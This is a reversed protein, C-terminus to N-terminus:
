NAKLLQLEKKLRDVEREARIARQEAADARKRERQTKRRQQQKGIQIGKQIGQEEVLDSLNCMSRLEEGIAGRSMPIHFKNELEEKKEEYSKTKSLLTNMMQLFVNETAVSENLTIVITCIKDYASVQDPYSGYVHTPTLSYRVITNGTKKPANMCIFISIAKMISDYDSDEFVTTLQSSIMRASYYIGRTEIKYGPYFSKQPEIDALIRKQKMEEKELTNDPQESTTIINGRPMKMSRSIRPEHIKATQRTERHKKPVQISFHIDYYVVGEGHVSSENAMGTIRASQLDDPRSHRHPADSNTEGPSVPISGIAPIGEIYDSIEEISCDRYEETTSKLIWALINRHSLVQRCLADYQIKLGANSISRALTNDM